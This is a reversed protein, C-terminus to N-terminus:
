MAVIIILVICAELKKELEVEEFNHEIRAHIKQNKKIFAHVVSKDLENHNIKICENCMVFVHM